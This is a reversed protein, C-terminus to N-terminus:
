DVGVGFACSVMEEMEKEARDMEKIKEDLLSKNSHYFYQPVMIAFAVFLWRKKDIANVGIQAMENKWNDDYSECCMARIFSLFTKYNEYDPFWRPRYAKIKVYRIEGGCLGVNDISYILHTGLKVGKWQKIYNGINIEFFPIQSSHSEAVLDALSRRCHVSMRDIFITNQNDSM